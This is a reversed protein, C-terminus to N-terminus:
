LGDVTILDGSGPNVFSGVGDCPYNNEDLGNVIHWSDLTQEDNVYEVVCIYTTGNNELAINGVRFVGRTSGIPFFDPPNMFAPLATQMVEGVILWSDDFDPVLEKLEVRHDVLSNVLILPPIDDPDTPDSHIVLEM